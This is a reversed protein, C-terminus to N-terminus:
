IWGIMMELPIDLSIRMFVALLVGWFPFQLQKGFGESILMSLGLTPIWIAHFWWQPVSDYKNMMESHIDPTGGKKSEKYQRWFDRQTARMDMLDSSWARTRSFGIMSHIISSIPLALPSGLFGIVTSWDFTFTGLGLGNLGSGLQHATVSKKWILCALSLSGISRFFYNPIIYYAFSSVFVLTFFQLKSVMGKPRSDKENITRYFSVDMLVFPWWMYPSDVLFRKFMGAFGFGLMQTTLMLLLAAWPNLPRHYFAKMTVIINSATGYSGKAMTTILVHEKINFPGPNLSFKWSTCPLRILRKPLTAAMLRGAPLALLQFFVLEIAIPNRRFSFFKSLSSSLICTSLGIVLVRFTFAPLTPDDTPPVTLLVQEIPHDEVQEDDWELDGVPKLMRAITDRWQCYIPLGKATIWRLEGDAKGTANTAATCPDCHVTFGSFTLEKMSEIKRALEESLCRLLIKDEKDDEFPNAEWKLEPAMLPAMEDKVKEHPRLGAFGKVVTVVLYRRLRWVEEVLIDDAVASVNHSDETETPKKQNSIGMDDKKNGTQARSEVTGSDKKKKGKRRSPEGEQHLRMGMKPTPAM